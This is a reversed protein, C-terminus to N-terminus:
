GVPRSASREQLAVLWISLEFLAVLPLVEIILSVPDATPLMAAVVALGVFALRRNARLMTSTLIGIRALGVLLLPFLFVLGMGVLTMAVFSYYEQARVAVDFSGAGLGLLFRVAPGLVFWYCFAVGAAFLVPAAAFLMRVRRRQWQDLAPSLFRYCNWVLAPFAAAFAANAAVTVSTFFPETVSLTQIRFEGRLPRNLLQFLLERQAYAVVFGVVLASLCLVIRWRLEELHDVAAARGTADLPRLKAIRPLRGRMGGMGRVDGAGLNRSPDRPPAPPPASATM